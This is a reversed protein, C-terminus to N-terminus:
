EMLVKKQLTSFRFDVFPYVNFISREQVGGGGRDRGWSIGWTGWVTRHVHLYAHKGQQGDRACM